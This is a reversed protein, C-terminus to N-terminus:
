NEAHILSDANYKGIMALIKLIIVSIGGKPIKISIGSPMRIHVSLRCNTSPM